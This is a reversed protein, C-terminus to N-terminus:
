ACNTWWWSADSCLLVPNGEAVADWVYLILGAPGGDNTAKVQIHNDGAVTKMPIFLNDNPDWGGVADGIKVGNLFVEARNDVAIQMWADGPKNARYVQGFNICVGAPADAAANPDNWIWSSAKTADRWSGGTMGWPGGNWPAVVSVPKAGPPKGGGGLAAISKDMADSRTELKGLLADQQGNVGEIASVRGEYEAAIAIISQLDSSSMCVGDICLQANNVSVSGNVDLAGDVQTDNRIYNRGDVGPFQTWNGAHRNYINLSGGVPYSGSSWGRDAATLADPSGVVLSGAVAATGDARFKHALTGEGGCDGAGCANGWIQFSEDADDNITMRLSSQNPGAVVKGLFYPDSNNHGWNPSPDMDPDRFFLRKQVNADGGCTADVQGAAVGCVNKLGSDTLVQADMSFEDRRGANRLTSTFAIAALLVVLIGFIVGIDIFQTYM